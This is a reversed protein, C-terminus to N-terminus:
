RKEMGKDLGHVQWKEVGNVKSKTYGIPDNAFARVRFTFKHEDNLKNSRRYEYLCTLCDLEYKVSYNKMEWERKSRNWSDKISFTWKEDEKVQREYSLTSSGALLNEKRPLYLDIQYTKNMYIGWFLHTNMVITLPSTWFREHMSYEPDFKTKMEVYNNATPKILMTTDVDYATNRVFDHNRSFSWNFLEWRKEAAGIVSYKSGLDTLPSLYYLTLKQNRTFVPSKSRADFYFPTNSEAESDFIDMDPYSKNYSCSYKIFSFWDLDYGSSDSRYNSADGTGYVNQEFSSNYWVRGGIPTIPLTRVFNMKFQYKETDMRYDSGSIKKEEIYRGFLSSLKIDFLNVGAGTPDVSTPLDIAIDNYVFSMEPLKRVYYKETEDSTVTDGDIDDIWYYNINMSKLPYGKSFSLSSSYQHTLKKNFDKKLRKEEWYKPSLSFSVSSLYNDKYSFSKSYSPNYNTELRQITKNKEDKKHSFSNRIGYMTNSFGYTRYIYEDKTYKRSLDTYSFNNGKYGYRFDYQNKLEDRKYDYDHDLKLSTTQGGGSYSVSIDSEKRERDTYSNSNRDYTQYYYRTNLKFDKFLKTDYKLEGYYKEEGLFAYAQDYVNFGKLSLRDGNAMKWTHNLGLGYGIQEYWDVYYLTSHEPNWYYDWTTQVFWGRVEDQGIVPYYLIPNQHGLKYIWYPSYFVPLGGVNFFLHSAVIKDDPYFEFSDAYLHYHHSPYKCTSFIGKSGWKKNPEEFLQKSRFYILGGVHKSRIQGQIEEMEFYKDASHMVLRESNINNGDINGSVNSEFVFVNDSPNIYLYDSNIIFDDTIVRVNGTATLQRYSKDYRIYDSQLSINEALLHPCILIQFLVILLVYLRKKTM